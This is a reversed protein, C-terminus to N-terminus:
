RWLEKWVSLLTGVIFGHRPQLDRLYEPTPIAAPNAVALFDWDHRPSATDGLANAFETKALEKVGLVYGAYMLSRSLTKPFVDLDTRTGALIQQVDPHIESYGSPPAPPRPGGYWPVDAEEIGKKMHIYIRERLNNGTRRADALQYLMRRGAQMLIDNARMLVKPRFSSPAGETRLQGSGDSIIMVECGQEDLSFIGQNDHFGGDSIRVDHGPYLRGLHIPPFFPIAASAAVAQGLSVPSDRTPATPDTLYFRRLRAAADVRTDISASPEGMWSATFQWNHGTNLTTANLVLMPVRDARRWNHLRPHFDSGASDDKPHVLLSSLPIPRESSTGMAPHYLSSELMQGIHATLSPGFPNLARLAAKTRLDFSTAAATLVQAVKAVCAVYDSRLLRKKTQLEDRLVLYYLAGTVSGGSVCSLTDVWRLLDLEALRALVGVHYFSARFGGGSLSLGVKGFPLAKIVEPAVLKSLMALGKAPDRGAFRRGHHLTALAILQRATSEREWDDSKADEMAKLLAGEAAEYHGLGLQAEALTAYGWWHGEAADLLPASADIVQQRYELAKLRLNEATLRLDLADLIDPTEGDDMDTALLDLTFAVNIAAYTWAGVNGVTKGTQVARGYLRAAKELHHRQRTLDWFRKHIAGGLSLTEADWDPDDLSCDPGPLVELAEALRDAVALEEDKYTCLAQQQRLWREHEPWRNSNVAVAAVQRALGFQKHAKLGPILELKLHSWNQGPEGNRIIKDADTLLSIRSNL